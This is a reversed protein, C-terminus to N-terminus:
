HNDGAVDPDFEDLMLENFVFTKKNIHDKENHLHLFLKCHLLTNM